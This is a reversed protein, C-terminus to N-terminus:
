YLNLRVVCGAAGGVYVICLFQSVGTLFIFLDCALYYPNWGWFLFFIEIKGLDLGEKV